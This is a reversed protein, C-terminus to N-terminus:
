YSRFKILEPVLFSTRLNVCGRLVARSTEKIDGCSAFLQRADFRLGGRRVEPVVLFRRLFKELLAATQFSFYFALFM